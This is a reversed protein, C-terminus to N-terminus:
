FIQFLKATQTLDGPTAKFYYELEIVFIVCKCSCGVKTKRYFIELTNVRERGISGMMCFGTLQNAICILQSTEIHHSINTTLLNLFPCLGNDMGQGVNIRLSLPVTDYKFSIKVLKSFNAKM